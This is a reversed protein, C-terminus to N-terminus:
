EGGKKPKLMLRGVRNVRMVVEDRQDYGRHEFWVIGANDRSKSLRKDLITTKADTTSASPTPWPWGSDRRPWM